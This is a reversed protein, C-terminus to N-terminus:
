SALSGLKVLVFVRVEFPSCPHNRISITYDALGVLFKTVVHLLACRKFDKTVPEKSLLYRVVIIYLFGGFLGEGCLIDERKQAFNVIGSDAFFANLSVKILCELAQSKGDVAKICLSDITEYVVDGAIDLIRGLQALFVIIGNTGGDVLTDVLSYGVLADM